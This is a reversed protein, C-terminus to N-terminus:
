IGQNPPFFPQFNKVNVYKSCAFIFIFLIIIKIVVLILNVIATQRIGFILIITIIVTIVVAPLNIVQGTVIFRETSESWVVPSQIIQSTVNYDSVVNIFNIVYKSWDVVVTLAALQYLLM